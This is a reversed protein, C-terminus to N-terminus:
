TSTRRFCRRPITKSKKKKTRKVPKTAASTKWRRTSSRKGADEFEFTCSYGKSKALEIVEWEEYGGPTLLAQFNNLKVNLSASTAEVNIPESEEDPTTTKDVQNFPDIVAKATYSGAKGYEVPFTLTIQEGSKLGGSVVKTQKLGKEKPELQVSFPGNTGGPGFDRVTVSETGAEKSFIPNPNM